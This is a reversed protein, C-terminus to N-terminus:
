LSRDLVVSLISLYGHGGASNSGATRTLWRGWVWSKSRAAVSIPLFYM